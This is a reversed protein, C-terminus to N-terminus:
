VRRISAGYLKTGYSRTRDYTRFVSTSIPQALVVKFLTAMLYRTCSEAREFRDHPPLEPTKLTLDIQYYPTLTKTPLHARAHKTPAYIQTPTTNTNYGRRKHRYGKWAKKGHFGNGPSSVPAAPRYHWRKLTCNVKYGLIQKMLLRRSGPPNAPAMKLSWPSYVHSQAM